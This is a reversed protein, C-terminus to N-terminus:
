QCVRCPLSWGPSTKSLFPSWLSLILSHIYGKSIINWFTNQPILTCFIGLPSEGYLVAIGATCLTRELGVAMSTPCYSTLERLRCWWIQGGPDTKFLFLTARAPHLTDRCRAVPCGREWLHPKGSSKRRHFSLKHKRKAKLLIQNCVSRWKEFFM